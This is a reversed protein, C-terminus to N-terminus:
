KTFFTFHEQSLHFIFYSAVYDRRSVASLAVLSNCGAGGRGVVM